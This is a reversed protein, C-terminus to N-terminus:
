QRTDPIGAHGASCGAIEPDSFVARLAAALKGATVVQIRSDGGFERSAAAAARGVAVLRTRGLVAIGALEQLFTVREAAEDGLDVVVAAPLQSGIAFMAKHVNSHVVVTAESVHRLLAKYSRLRGPSALLVVLASAIGPTTITKAIFSLVDARYVRRHGGPTKWSTLVGSEIWLQATRVSVGLLKAAQTTTLVDKPM